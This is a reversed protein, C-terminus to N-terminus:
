PETMKIWIPILSLFKWSKRGARIDYAGSPAANYLLSRGPPLSVGPPSRFGRSRERTVGGDAWAHLGTQDVRLMLLQKCCGVPVPGLRDLRIRHRDQEDLVLAQDRAIQFIGQR